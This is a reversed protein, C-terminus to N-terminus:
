AIEALVDGSQIQAGQSVPIATVIGDFGAKVPIEMKMSELVIVTDGKAVKEGPKKEIRLVLGPLEAKIQKATGSAAAPAAAGGAFGAKVSASYEKGDVIAANGKLEVKYEKGNLTVTYKNEGPKAAPADAAKKRLNVPGHGKLFAIGKEKCTAVLFINEDTIPLGEKELIKKNAEIGKKPDANNIELPTKKTPEMQLQEAAIKVIEPDPEIPTRGFYGLVMKGYGPAIKKWEGYIANNLAQQSYFQSVPTVSTGFGGRRVVEKMAKLMAPYKDMMKNDRLMQTNATLAGGPLPSYPILPEVAKSEPPVFYDKMCDKFVEEAEVIKDIDFGLDYETGRLAHWMSIIDPQSTGGSVPAMALDICDAGGEIAALYCAISTGATDHTHFRIPMKNGLLKRARKVTERIVAPTTTGSADKFCLSDFEVGADLLKKIVGLYFEPTHVKDSGECNPPLSMLTVVAEHRLGAEKIAKGSEILNNEDNLADFNRITTVGHKKFMRAHLKIVDIPQSELGVVNVGRALTQLNANPGAAKRFDDMAQFPDTNCYFCLSQFIAGGGSEFHDVGAAAAAEVAPLYDKPLVRAGFVSQFGDRFATVMVNIKKM